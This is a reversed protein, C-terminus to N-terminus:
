KPRRKAKSAKSARDRLGTRGDVWLIVQQLGHLLWKWALPKQIVTGLSSCFMMKARPQEPWPQLLSMNDYVEEQNALLWHDDGMHEGLDDWSPHKDDPVAKVGKMPGLVCVFNPWTWLLGDRGRWAQCFPACSLGEMWLTKWVNHDPDIDPFVGALFRIDCVQIARTLEFIFARPADDTTKPLRVVGVAVAPQPARLVVSAVAMQTHSYRLTFDTHPPQVNAVVHDVFQRHTVLYGGPFLCTVRKDGQLTADHCLRGMFAEGAGAHDECVVSAIHAPTKRLVGAFEYLDCGETLVFSAFVINDYCVDGTFPENSGEHPGERSGSRSQPTLPPPVPPESFTEDQESHVPSYDSYSDSAPASPVEERRARKPPAAPLDAFLEQLESLRSQPRKNKAKATLGRSSKAARAEPSSSRSRQRPRSSSSRSRKRAGSSRSQPDERRWNDGVVQTPLWSPIAGCIDALGDVQMVVQIWNETWTGTERLIDGPYM